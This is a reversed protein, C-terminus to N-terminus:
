GSDPEAQKGIYCDRCVAPLNGDLHAQRFKRYESGFWTAAFDRAGDEGIEFADPNSITCCPVTRMDSTVMAREFPWACRTRPSFHSYKSGCLWFGARIGLSQARELIKQLLDFNYRDDTQALDNAARWKPDGWGILTFSFALDRFGLQDAVDVLDLLQHRNKEQVVSWMKTIRKDQAICYDNLMKCNKSVQAFDSQRRISEFVEANAGDFSIQIENVGSDVYDRYYDKLHLRSANTVTRVWIHRARAYRIMQLLDGNQLTPEGLGQIKLEVLGYQEEILRKFDDVCMDDARQGKDWDSVACMTCRFNCRSVNEVDLKVPMYDVEAAGRRALLYREYNQRKKNDAQLCLAREGDYIDPGASPLPVPFKSGALVSGVQETSDSWDFIRDM